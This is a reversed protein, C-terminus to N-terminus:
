NGGNIIIRKGNVIIYDFSMAVETRIISAAQTWAYVNSYGGVTVAQTSYVNYLIFGALLAVAYRFM